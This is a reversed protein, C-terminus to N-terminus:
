LGEKQCDRCTRKFGLASNHSRSFFIPHKPLTRHCKACVITEIQHHAALDLLRQVRAATAIKRPISRTQRHQIQAVTLNIGEDALARQVLFIPTHLVYHHLLFTELDDLHALEVYREVDWLLIRTAVRLKEYNKMLLQVYWQLLAKIHDPNEYDIVNNSVTWFVTGDPRAPADPLSPQPYDRPHPNRKRECWEEIPLWYGTPCDVVHDCNALTSSVGHSGITPRFLDRLAYQERQLEVLLKRAKYTALSTPKHIVSVGGGVRGAWSDLRAKLRDISDWLDFFQPIPNGDLDAADGLDLLNGEEDYTPRRIPTRKPSTYVPENDSSLLGTKAHTPDEIYGEVSLAEKQRRRKARAPDQIEKRDAPTSFTHRDHGRIIYDGM